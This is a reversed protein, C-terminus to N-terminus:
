RFKSRKEGRLYDYAVVLRNRDLLVGQLRGYPCVQTCVQERFRSFVGYFLGTLVFMAAFAGLNESPPSGVIEVTKDIGIIYSMFTHMILFSVALYILHKSGKKIVKETSLPAKDLKKQAMYDGEIWYEVRRFVHEMFITQPCIWGCFIRGYIVTFLIISVVITILAIAFLHFDQPWFVQGFLVFKRDIINFLLFPQEGIKLFPAGFLFAMLIVTVVTRWKFYRGSPKKPYVWIRKGEEDVTALHDRFSEHAEGEKYIADIQEKSLSM